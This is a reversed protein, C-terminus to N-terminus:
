EDDKTWPALETSTWDWLKQALEEDAMLGTLKDRIGVPMYHIGSEVERLHNQTGAGKGKAPATAAWCGNWAVEEVPRVFAFSTMRIFLNNFFGSGTVLSTYAVGPHISVITLDNHHEALKRAYLLNALKSQGYRRWQGFFVDQTTKLKEFQIGEAPAIPPRAAESSWIVIRVDLSAPNAATKQMLPLLLEVMLAHGLHNIGIHMEYGEKTLGSPLCMVGANALFIDLRDIESLISKIATKIGALSTQDCATFTVLVSPFDAKCKAILEDAAKKNRGTFIIRAPLHAVLNLVTERGLGNTGGTILIVKGSLDPIDRIPNYAISTNDAM